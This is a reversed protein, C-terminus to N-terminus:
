AKKYFMTVLIALSWLNDADGVYTLVIEDGEDLKRMGKVDIDFVFPDANASDNSSQITKHWLVSKGDKGELTFISHSAAFLASGSPEVRIMLTCIGPNAALPALSVNGVLRVLTEVEEITDLTVSQAAITVSDVAPSYIRKRILRRKTSIPVRFSQKRQSM